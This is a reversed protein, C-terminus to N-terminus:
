LETTSHEATICDDPKILNDKYELLTKLLLTNEQNLLSVQMALEQQRKRLLSIDRFCSFIGYMALLLAIAFVISPPYEVSFLSALHSSLAPFIGFMIIIFGSSIWFLSQRESIGNAIISKLAVVILLAGAISVTIRLFVSM